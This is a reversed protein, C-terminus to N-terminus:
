SFTWTVSAGKKVQTHVTYLLATTHLPPATSLLAAAALMALPLSKL